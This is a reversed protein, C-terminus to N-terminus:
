QGRQAKARLRTIEEDRRVENRSVRRLSTLYLGEGSVTAKVVAVWGDQELLYIISRPGDQIATGLDIAQQVWVAYDGAGVEPHRKAQKNLTDGSLMVTRTKAGLAQAVAADILGVPLEEGAVPDAVFRAFNEAGLAAQIQERALAPDASDLAERLLQSPRKVRAEGANYAFGPDIGIPIGLPEGTRPDRYYVLVDPPPTQNINEGRAIRRELERESLAFATCRCRWGNPPYHARWFPHDAPLVLGDWAAHQKRVRDDHMTRYMILPQRAKNRQIAAWRGAAYSQRLNTDYILQLRADNFRTVRIEGTQPDTIEIDGWWGKAALLPKVQRAFDAASVGQSVSARLAEQFLQLIDAQAVGSVMFQGAHEEQWVDHWNFTPALRGREQYAAVADRPEVAGLRPRAPVAAPM